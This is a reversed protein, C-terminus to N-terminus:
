NISGYTPGTLAVNSPSGRSSMKPAFPKGGGQPEQPESAARAINALAGLVSSDFGPKSSLEGVKGLIQTLAEKRDTTELTLGVSRAFKSMQASPIKDDKIRELNISM